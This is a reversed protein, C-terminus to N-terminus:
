EDDDNDKDKRYRRGDDDNDDEDNDNDDDDEFDDAGVDESDDYDSYEGETDSPIALDYHKRKRLM